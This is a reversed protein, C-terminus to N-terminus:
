RGFYLWWRYVPGNIKDEKLEKIKENNEIYVDIQKAVLTDAKLEPYLSVLVVADKPSVETFIEQEYEQYRQVCDSIQNEIHANEAEYMEIREDVVRLETVEVSCCVFAVIIIICGVFGTTEIGFEDLLYGTVLLAVFVLFIVILM